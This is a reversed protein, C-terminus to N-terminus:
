KKVTYKVKKTVAKYVSDGAFKVTATFKGKKTVKVKITAKGKANTKASFTKGNVKISIKKKAVAKGNSKLTIAIKKAKKVKLTAKKATLTTAKKTVTIAATALSSKYLNGEGAYIASVYKTAAATTTVNLTAVGNDDTKVTQAKGDVIITVEKHALGIGKNDKLIAEVVAVDGAVASVNAVELTTNYLTDASYVHNADLTENLIANEASFIEQNDFWISIGKAGEVLTNNAVIVPDVVGLTGAERVLLHFLTITSADADETYKTVTNGTISVNAIYSPFGHAENGAEGAILTNNTNAEFTNDKIEINDTAKQVSIVPFDNWSINGENFSGCNTFTNGAIVSDKTSSGGFYISYVNGDFVNDLVKNSGAGQAISIADLVPGTFNNGKVTCAYSQGQIAVVKSGQEKNVTPDNALLTSYGGKFNNNEITVDHSGQVVRVATNFDTFQSNKIEVGNSGAINIGWGNTSGGYTFNNKPNTDIFILDQITVNSVKNLYFLGNGDGNGKITTTGNGKIVLNNKAVTVTKEGFDYEANNSLDIVDSENASDIVSQVADVTNAAPQVAVPEVTVTANTDAVTENEASVSGVSLAILVVLLLSLVIKKNNM